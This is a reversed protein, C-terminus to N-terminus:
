ACTRRLGVDAPLGIFLRKDYQPNIVVSNRVAFCQILQSGAWHSLFQCPGNKFLYVLTVPSSFELKSYVLTEELSDGKFSLILFAVESIFEVRQPLSPGGEDIQCM